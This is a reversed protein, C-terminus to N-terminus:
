AFNAFRMQVGRNTHVKNGRARTELPFLWSLEHSGPPESATRSVKAHVLWAEPHRFLPTSNLPTATVVSVAVVASCRWDTVAAEQYQIQLVLLLLALHFGSGGLVAM